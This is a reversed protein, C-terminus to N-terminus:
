ELGGLLWKKKTPSQNNKKFKIRDLCDSSVAGKPSSKKNKQLTDKFGGLTM